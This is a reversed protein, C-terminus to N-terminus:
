ERSYLLAPQLKHFPFFPESKGAGDAAKSSSLRREEIGLGLVVTDSARAAALAAAFGDTSPDFLDCGQTYTTSGAANTTQIASFPSTVCDFSHIDNDGGDEHGRVWVGPCVQRCGLPLVMVVMLSGSGLHWSALISLSHIHWSPHTLPHTDRVQGTDHQVLTMTANGHPGLVAVKGGKKLPLVGKPNALLVLSSQAAKLNLARSEESGIAEAGLKWYPQDDIRDFLGLDFRVRLSNFVARNVDDM